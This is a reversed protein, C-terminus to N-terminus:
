AENNKITFKYNTSVVVAPQNIHLCYTYKENVNMEDTIKATLHKDYKYINKSFVKYTTLYKFIDLSKVMNKKIVDTSKKLTLRSCSYNSKFKIVYFILNVGLVNKVYKEFIIHLKDSKTRKKSM